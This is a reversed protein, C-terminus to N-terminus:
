PFHGTTIIQLSLGGWNERRRRRTLIMKRIELRYNFLDIVFDDRGPLTMGMFGNENNGYSRVPDLHFIEKAAKRTEEPLAEGMTFVNRGVM